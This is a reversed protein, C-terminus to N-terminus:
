SPRWLNLNKLGNKDFEAFYREVLETELKSKEEPKMAQLAERGYKATLDRDALHRALEDWFVDDNYDYLDVLWRDETRQTPYWGNLEEDYFVARELGFDRSKEYLTNELADTEQDKEEEERFGNVVWNGLYALRLLTEYQKKNLDIEM